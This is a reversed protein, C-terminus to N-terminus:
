VWFDVCNILNVSDPSVYLRLDLSLDWNRFSSNRHLSSNYTCFFIFIIVTFYIKVEIFITNSICEKVITKDNIRDWSDRLM